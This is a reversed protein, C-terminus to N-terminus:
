ITIDELHLGGEENMHMVQKKLWQDRSEPYDNRFHVGRSETRRLMFQRMIETLLLAQKYSTVKSYEDYHTWGLDDAVGRMKKLSLAANEMDDSTRLPGLTMQCLHRMSQISTHDEFPQGHHQDSVLEPISTPHRYGKARDAAHRGAIRGFILCEALATGGHRNAGHLGGALEGVAYLRPVSTEGDVNTRVGGITYHAIPAVRIPRELFGDVYRALFLRTLSNDDWDGSRTRSFDMYVNQGEMIERHVAISLHDWNDLNGLVQDGGFHKEVLDEGADNFLHTNEPFDPYIFITPLNEEVLALPYFQIFEMDILSAGAELAMIHGEGTLNEPADTFKYIGQVGGSALIVAGASITVVKGDMLAVVFPGDPLIQLAKGKLRKVTSAKTAKLLQSFLSTGHTASFEM